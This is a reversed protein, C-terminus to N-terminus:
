QLSGVVINGQGTPPYNVDVFNIFNGAFGIAGGQGSINGAFPDLLGQQFDNFARQGTNWGFSPAFM